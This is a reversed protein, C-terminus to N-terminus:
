FPRRHLPRIGCAVMGLGSRATSNKVAMRRGEGTSWRTLFMTRFPLNMGTGGFYLRVAEPRFGAERSGHEVSLGGTM